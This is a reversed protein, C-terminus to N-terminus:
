VTIKNLIGRFLANGHLFLISHNSFKERKENGMRRKTHINHQRKVATAAEQGALTYCYRIRSSNQTIHPTCPSHKTSQDRFLQLVCCFVDPSFEPLSPGGCCAMFFASWTQLQGFLWHSFFCFRTKATCSVCMRASKHPVRSNQLKSVEIINTLWAIAVFGGAGWPVTTIKAPFILQPLYIYFLFSFFFCRLPFPACVCVCVPQAVPKEVEVVGGARRWREGRLPRWKVTEQEHRDNM